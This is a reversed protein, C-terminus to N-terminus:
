PAFDFLVLALVRSHMARKEEALTTSSYTRAQFYGAPLPDKVHAFNQKVM